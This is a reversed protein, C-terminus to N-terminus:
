HFSFIHLKCTYLHHKAKHEIIGPATITCNFWLKFTQNYHEVTYKEFKSDVERPLMEFFTTLM